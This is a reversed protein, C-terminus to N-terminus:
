PEAEICAFKLFALVIATKRNKHVFWHEGATTPYVVWNGAETRYINPIVMAELLRANAAEDTDFSTWLWYFSEIKEPPENNHRHLTWLGKPSSYWRKELLERTTEIDPMPEFYETIRKNIEKM